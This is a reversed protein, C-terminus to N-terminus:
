RRETAALSPHSPKAAEDGSVGGEGAPESPGVAEAEKVTGRLNADHISRLERPHLSLPDLILPARWPCCSSTSGMGSSRASGDARAAKAAIEIALAVTAEFAVRPHRRFCPPQSL